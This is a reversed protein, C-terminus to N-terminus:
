RRLGSRDPHAWIDPDIALAHKTEKLNDSFLPAESDTRDARVRGYAIFLETSSRFVSRNSNLRSPPPSLAIALLILSRRM